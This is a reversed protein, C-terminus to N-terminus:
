QSQATREILQADTLQEMVRALGIHWDPLAIGFHKQLRAGDLRSYAPRRAPTPYESTSIAQVEPQQALWGAQSALEIIQRAFGYWSTEGGATLHYTGWRSHDGAATQQAHLLLATADAIQRASTPAGFQDAVITLRPRQEALRLMSRLFNQGRSGYVWATRLILHEACHERVANEGSLKSRGYAGLPATPHDERYPASASGDFVYDTSYHILKADARAVAQAIESLAHHNVREAREVEQEAKDVATYAAANVVWHPKFEAIAREASGPSELDVSIRGNDGRRNALQLQGLPALSRALEFGVQGDCGLLLIRKATM